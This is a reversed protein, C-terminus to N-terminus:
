LHLSSNPPQLYVRAMDQVYMALGNIKFRMLGLYM